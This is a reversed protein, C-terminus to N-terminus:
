KTDPWASASRKKEQKKGFFFSTISRSRVDFISGITLFMSASFFIIQHFYSSLLAFGDLIFRFQFGSEFCSSIIKKELEILNENMGNASTCSYCRRKGLQIPPM